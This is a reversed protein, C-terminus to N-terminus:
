ENEQRISLFLSSIGSGVDVFEYNSENKTRSLLFTTPSVSTISEIAADSDVQGLIHGSLADLLKVSGSFAIALYRGEATAAIDTAEPLPWHASVVVETSKDSGQLRYVGNYGDLVFFLGQRLALIRRPEPLSLLFQPEEGIAIRFLGTQRVGVLLASGNYDLALSAIDESLTNVSISGTAAAGTEAAAFVDAKREAARYAAFHRSNASWIITTAEAGAHQM